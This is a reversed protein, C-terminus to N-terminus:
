DHNKYKGTLAKLFEDLNTSNTQKSVSVGNKYLVAEGYGNCIQGLFGVTTQPDVTNIDILYITLGNAQHINLTSLIRQINAVSYGSWIAHFLLLSYNLNISRAQDNSTILSIALSPDSIYKQFSTFM